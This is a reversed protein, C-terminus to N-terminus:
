NSPVLLIGTGVQNQEDSESDENLVAFEIGQMFPKRDFTICASAFLADPSNALRQYGLANTRNSNQFLSLNGAQNLQVEYLGPWQQEVFIQLKEKLGVQQRSSLQQYKVGQESLLEGAKIKVASSAIRFATLNLKEPSNIYPDM